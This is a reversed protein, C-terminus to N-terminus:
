LLIRRADDILSALRRLHLSIRRLEDQAGIKNLRDIIATLSHIHRQALTMLKQATMQSVRARSHREAGVGPPSKKQPPRARTMGKCASSAGRGWPPWTRRGPNGRDDRPGLPERPSPYAPPDHRSVATLIYTDRELCSWRTRRWPASGFAANRTITVSSSGLTSGPPGGRVISEIV